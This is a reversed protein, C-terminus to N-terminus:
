KLKSESNYFHTYTGVKDIVVNLITISKLSVSFKFSIRMFTGLRVQCM